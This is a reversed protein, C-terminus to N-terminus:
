PKDDGMRSTLAARLTPGLGLALAAKPDALLQKLRTSMEGDYRHLGAASQAEATGPEYGSHWDQLEIRARAAEPTWTTPTAKPTLVRPTGLPQTVPTGTQNPPPAQVGAEPAVDLNGTDIKRIISPPRSPAVQNARARAKELY